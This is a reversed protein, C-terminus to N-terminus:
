RKGRGKPLFENPDPERQNKKLITFLKATNENEKSWFVNFNPYKMLLVSLMFCIGSCHGRANEEEYSNKNNTTNFAGLNKDKDQLMSTKSLSEFSFKWDESFEILLGTKKFSEQMKKAQKDLRGSKLSEMLDGSIVSKREIAM